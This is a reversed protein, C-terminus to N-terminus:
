EITTTPPLILYGFVVVIVLHDSHFWSKMGLTSSRNRGRLSKTFSLRIYPGLSWAYTMNDPKERILHLNVRAEVFVESIPSVQENSDNWLLAMEGINM